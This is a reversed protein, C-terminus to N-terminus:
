YGATIIKTEKSLANGSPLSIWDGSVGIVASHLCTRTVVDNAKTSEFGGQYGIRLATAGFHLDLTVANDMRFYSGWWACHALGSHNGLYIEYYLEGYDPGFFAGIVPISPQYRLTVAQRGINGHWAAYGTANFTFAARASAPNNGNRELYRIGGILSAQPGVGFSLGYKWKARWLMAYDIQIAASWMNASHAPNLTRQADLSVGLQMVWREPSFKAAQQRQYGFGVTWGSYKLPTLYTDAIHASGARLTYAANVPRLTMTDGSQSYAGIATFATTLILLFLKRM